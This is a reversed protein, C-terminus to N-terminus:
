RNEVALLKQLAASLRAVRGEEVDDMCRPEVRGDVVFFHPTGEKIAQGEEILSAHYVRAETIADALRAHEDRSRWAVEDCVCLSVAAADDDSLDRLYKLLMLRQVERARRCEIEAADEESLLNYADINVTYAEEDDEDFDDCLEEAYMDDLEELIAAVRDVLEPAVLEEICRNGFETLACDVDRSAQRITAATAYDIKALANVVSPAPFVSTQLIAINDRTTQLVDGAEFVGMSALKRVDLVIVSSWLSEDHRSTPGFSAYKAACRESATLYKENFLSWEGGRGGTPVLDWLGVSGRLLRTGLRAASEGPDCSRRAYLLTESEPLLSKYREMDVGTRGESLLLEYVPFLSRLRSLFQGNTEAGRALAADRVEGAFSAGRAQTDLNFAAERLTVSQFTDRARTAKVEDETQENDIESAHRNGGFM